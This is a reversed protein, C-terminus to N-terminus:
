IKDLPYIPRQIREYPLLSLNNPCPGPTDVTYSKRTIPDYARKHAVAAKVVIVHQREPEIGQSRLQGLDFPPTKRSTLLVTIGEHQVVACPGMDIKGGVMSALHSQPDELEFHGDSKSILEVEIILPEGSFPTAKGGVEVRMVSGTPKPYLQQVAEPDNIICVAGQIGNEVLARLVPTCDGPAGAGINDSPEVIIIPGDSPKKLEDIIKDTPSLNSSALHGLAVAQNKLRSLCKQAEDHDGETIISFSVGTDPTDAFAFGAFVNVALIESNEREIERAIRELSLMPEQDTHTGTPPWMLPPHGWLTFPHLGSRIVRDLLVAAEHAAQQADIHPNKKYAVLGQSCEAMAATFNAHLDLVGGIPIAGAEPLARIRSLLKGEVDPFSESVMAGHLVLFIGDIRDAAAQRFARKFRDWFFEVIGDECTGGPMANMHLAPLIMWNLAEAAQLVGALPSTDQTAQLISSGQLIEFEELSTKNSLFSHTEHFLGALLIRKKM